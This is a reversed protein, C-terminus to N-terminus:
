EWEEEDLEEPERRRPESGYKDILFQRVRDTLGMMQADRDIMDICKSAYAIGESDGDMWIIGNQGVFVKCGTYEKILSVMSGSKGIVRPVKSPTIRTIHGRDLRRLGPEKLTVQIRMTEDVQGIKALITDGARLYQSTKGFEVKWPVDNVHMLAPYPSNVNVIWSSPGVDKIIGIVSDGPRPMYRGSLPLVNIYGSRVNKVGLLSAFIRDGKLYTGTGPKYSNDGLEEGPIVLIRQEAAPAEEEKLM